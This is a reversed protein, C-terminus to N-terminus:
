ELMVSHWNSRNGNIDSYTKHRRKVVGLGDASAHDIIEKKKFRIMSKESHSFNRDIFLDFAKSSNLLYKNNHIDAIIQGEALDVKSKNLAWDRFQRGLDPLNESLRSYYNGISNQAIFAALHDDAWKTVISRDMAVLEAVRKNLHEITYYLVAEFYAAQGVQQFLPRSTITGDVERYYSFRNAFQDEVGNETVLSGVSEASTFLKLYIEVIQELMFKPSIKLTSELQKLESKITKFEDISVMWARKFSDADKGCPKGEFIAEVEKVSLQVVLGIREFIGILFGKGWDSLAHLWLYAHKRNSAFRAALLLEIFDPYRKFHDLYDNVVADNPTGQAEFPEHNLTIIVVGEKIEICSEAAWMDVAWQIADRQNLNKVTDLLSKFLINKAAALLKNATEARESEANELANAHKKKDDETADDALPEPTKVEKEAAIFAAALYVDENIGTGFNMSIQTRADSERFQNLNNERNLFFVKSKAGSWFINNLMREVQGLDLLAYRNGGTAKEVADVGLSGVFLPLLYDVLQVTKKSYRAKFDDASRVIPKEPVVTNLWMREWYRHGQTRGNDSGHQWDALISYIESFSFGQHKLMAVMGMDKASGSTDTLGDTGGSWREALKTNSKLLAEFRAKTALEDIDEYCVQDNNKGKAADAKAKIKDAYWTPLHPLESLLDGELWYSEDDIQYQKGDAISPALLIYGNACRTDIHPTLKNNGLPEDCRYFLHTGGSPSTQTMTDKPLTAGHAKEELELEYEWAPCGTEKNTDGDVICLGCGYPYLGINANPYEAWWQKIQEADKTAQHFDVLTAKKTGVPIPFVTLGLEAYKLAAELFGGM